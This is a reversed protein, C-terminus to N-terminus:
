SGFATPITTIRTTVLIKNKNSHLSGPDEPRPRAFGASLDIPSTHYLRDLPRSTPKTKALHRNGPVLMFMPRILVRSFRRALFLLSKYRYTSINRPTGRQSM